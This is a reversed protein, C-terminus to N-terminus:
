RHITCAVIKDSFVIRYEGPTADKGCKVPDGDLTYIQPMKALSIAERYEGIAKDGCVCLSGLDSRYQVACTTIESQERMIEARHSILTGRADLLRDRNEHFRLVLAQVLQEMLARPSQQLQEVQLFRHRDALATQYQSLKRHTMEITQSTKRLIRRYLHKPAIERLSEAAATPTIQHSDAVLDALTRDISHGIGTVIPIKSRLIAEAVKIQDFCNLDERSGGGRLLVLVDVLGHRNALSIADVIEQSAKSGQVLSPYLIVRHMGGLTKWFDGLGAAHPSSVVGIALLVKPIPIPERLLQKKVLWEWRDQVPDTVVQITQWRIPKIQLTGRYISISGTMSVEIRDELVTDSECDPFLIGSISGTEDQLQFFTIRPYSKIGTVVGTLTVLHHDSHILLEQITKTIQAVTTEPYQTM